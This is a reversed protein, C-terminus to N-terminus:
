KYQENEESFAVFRSALLIHLCRSIPEILYTDLSYQSGYFHCAHINYLKVLTVPDAFYLEQGLFHLESIFKTCKVDKVYCVNTMSNDLIEWINLKVSMRFNNDM